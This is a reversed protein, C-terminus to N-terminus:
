ESTAAAPNVAAAAPQAAMRASLRLASEKAVLESVQALKQEAVEDKLPTRACFHVTAYMSRDFDVGLSMGVTTTEELTHPIPNRLRLVFSEDHLRAKAVIVVDNGEFSVTGRYIITAAGPTLVELRLGRLRRKVVFETHIFSATGGVRSWHYSHWSKLLPTVKRYNAIYTPVYKVVSTILGGLALLVIDKLDILMFPSLMWDMVDRIDRALWSM